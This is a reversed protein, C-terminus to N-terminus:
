RRAARIEHALRRAAAPRLHPRLEALIEEPSPWLDLMWRAFMGDDMWAALRAPPMGLGGHGAALAGRMDGWYNNGSERDVVTQKVAAPLDPDCGVLAPHFDLVEAWGRPREPAGAALLAVLWLYVGLLHPSGPPPPTPLGLCRRMVDLVRGAGPPEDCASGDPLVMHWGVTGSRSVVCAMRVSGPVGPVLEAPLEASDDLPRVRGTAVMALARCGPPASWGAPEFDPDTVVLEFRDDHHRVVMAWVPHGALAAAEGLRGLLHRALASEDAALASLM